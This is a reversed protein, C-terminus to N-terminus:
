DPARLVDQRHVPRLGDMVLGYSVRDFTRFIMVHGIYEEPLTVKADKPHFLHKATGETYAYDDNITEGPTYISYTEGNEVGDAAGRSLAVVQRPGIANVADTFALVKFDSPVEEPPHPLYQSDYPKDEVPMILDGPRVEMDSYTVLMSSPSGERTVQANGIVQVEYGLVKVDGSFTHEMPSHVWLVKSQGHLPDVERVHTTPAGGKEKPPLSYYLNTPRVVVFRDGAKGDSNRVYILNGSTGRLKNEEIALVHPLGKFTKEDVVRMNKLFHEIDKLPIPQIAEDLPSSRVRPGTGSLRYRGNLYSLNLVDGPYILHPNEVQPNAQWIEPWLWPKKLFRASIDWLTDGRKVTYTDPHDTRLEAESVAAAAVTLLLGAFLAPLKKLM